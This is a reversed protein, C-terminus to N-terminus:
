VQPYKALLKNIQQAKMNKAGPTLKAMSSNKKAHQLNQLYTKFCTQFNTVEELCMKNEFNNKELCSLVMTIEQLCGKEKTKSHKGTIHNRLKMPLDPVFPVKAENQPAKLNRLLILGTKM